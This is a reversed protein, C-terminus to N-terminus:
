IVEGIKRNESLRVGGWKAGLVDRGFLVQCIIDHWCLLLLLITDFIGLLLDRAILSRFVGGEFLLWDWIYM